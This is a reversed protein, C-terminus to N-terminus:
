VIEGNEMEIMKTHNLQSILHNDHTAIVITKGKEKLNNLLNVVTSISSKDLAIFPEDLLLLEQNEMYSQIIALKQKMGLSYKRVNLNRDNYLDLDKLCSLIDEEKILNNINALYKLNELGSINLFEPKEIIVGISSFDNSVTGTSPQIFGAILRLLMTKGSGNHGQIIVMENQNIDLSINTLINRNKIQKSVNNIKIM